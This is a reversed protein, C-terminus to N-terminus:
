RGEQRPVLGRFLAVGALAVATFAGARPHGFCMALWAATSLIGIALRAPRLAVPRNLLLVDGPRLRPEPAYRKIKPGMGYLTFNPPTM